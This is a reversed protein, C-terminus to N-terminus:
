QKPSQSNQAQLAQQYRNVYPLWPQILQDLEDSSFNPNKSTKLFNFLAFWYQDTASLYSSTLVKQLQDTPVVLGNPLKLFKAKTIILTDAVAKASLKSTDSSISFSPKASEKKEEKQAFLSISFLMAMVLAFQKM